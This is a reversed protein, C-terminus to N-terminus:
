RLTIQALCGFTNVTYAYASFGSVDRDERTVTCAASWNRTIEYSAGIYASKSVDTREPITTSTGQV